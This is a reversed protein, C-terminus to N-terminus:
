SPMNEIFEKLIEDVEPDASEKEAETEEDAEPELAAETKVRKGKILRRVKAPNCPEDDAQNVIKIRGDELQITKVKIRLLGCKLEDSKEM